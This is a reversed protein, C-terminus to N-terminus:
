ATPAARPGSRRPGAARPAARGLQEDIQGVSISLDTTSASTRTTSSSTFYRHRAEREPLDASVAGAVLAVDRVDRDEGVVVLRVREDDALDGRLAHLFVEACHHVSADIAVLGGVHAGEVEHHLAREAAAARPRQAGVAQALREAAREHPM